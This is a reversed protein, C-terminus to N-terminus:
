WKMDSRVIIGLLGLEEVVEVEHDDLELEPVFDISSCPNFLMAKTKKFNIKMQNTDAYEKTKVLQQYVSPNGLPLVHGTRAHFNDPLPRVSDPISELQKPLNIAEALTMDDVFKLHIENLLKMNRKSTLIDGANNVQGVFGADNILIIFLLLGLLTGQPGCGPLYKIGSEKGRYRVLMRRDTLFAIVIKLLWSPVGM